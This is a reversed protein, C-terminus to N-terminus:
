ARERMEILSDGWLAASTPGPIFGRPPIKVPPTRRGCDINGEVQNFQWFNPVFWARLVFCLALLPTSIAWLALAGDINMFGRTQKHEKEDNLTGSLGVVVLVCCLGVGAPIFGM